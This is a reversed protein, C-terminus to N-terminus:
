IIRIVASFILSFSILATDWYAALKRQNTFFVIQRGDEFFRNKQVAKKQAIKVCKQSHLRM